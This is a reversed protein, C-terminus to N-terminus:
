NDDQDDDEDDEDEDDDEDEADDDDEELDDDEDEEGDDDSDAAEEETSLLEQTATDYTFEYETDGLVAEITTEGGDTEVEIDTYGQGELDAVIADTFSQAYAWSTLGLTIATTTTLLRKM